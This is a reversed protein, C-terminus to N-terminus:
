TILSQDGQKYLMCKAPQTAEGPRLAVKFGHRKRARSLKGGGSLLAALM